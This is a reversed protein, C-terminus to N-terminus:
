PRGGPLRLAVMMSELALQPPVNFELMQERATFIADILRLLESPRPRARSRPSTAASSRTSWCRRARRRQARHRRPLGLRPGDAGPRDRRARPAQGEAEAAEGPRWRRATPAPPPTRASAASSRRCTRLERREADATIAETEEKALEALDTAATMCSGLSTLRAPISVVERRRSRTQEDLALARARGIHGQSARAAFSAVTESIGDNRALFRAVDGHRPHGPDAHPLAVPDDPARGSRRRACCGCRRRRRSRSRRSCRTAPARTRRPASATPTRSSWSRGAASRRPVEGGVAGPRAHRRRLAGVDRVEGLHHRPPAAM